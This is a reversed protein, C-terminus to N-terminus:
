NKTNDSVIVGDQVTVVRTAYEAVTKDHTIVVITTGTEDHFKKLLDLVQRGTVSDLDGTPEDAFIISPNNTLARAIGVRQMQGGSLQSPFQKAQLDIGVGSLLSNIREQLEKSLGALDSPLSINEKATYHPLLAYNQFIFGMELLRANSRKKDNMKHLNQGHFYVAGRDPSDLGAICNLLTTKGAGSTGFIVLFENQHIDLSMGRIAYVTTAGLNYTKFLGIVSIIINKDISIDKTNAYRDSFLQSSFSYYPVDLFKDTWLKLKESEIFLHVTLNVFEGFKQKYLELSPVLEQTEKTTYDRINIKCYSLKEEISYLIQLAIKCISSQSNFIERLHIKDLLEESAVGLLEKKLIEQLSFIRVLVSHTQELASLKAVIIRLYLNLINNLRKDEIQIRKNNMLFMFLSSLTTNLNQLLKVTPDAWISLFNFIIAKDVLNIINFEKTTLDEKSFDFPTLGSFSFRFNDEYQWLFVINKSVNQKLLDPLETHLSDLDNTLKKELDSNFLSLFSNVIKSTEKLERNSQIDRKLLKVINKDHYSDFLSQFFKEFNEIEEIPIKREFSTFHLLWTNLEQSSISINDVKLVKKIESSIKNAFEKNIARLPKEIFGATILTNTSTM